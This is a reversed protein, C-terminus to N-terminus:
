CCCAIFFFDVRVVYVMYGHIRVVQVVVCFFVPYDAFKTLGDLFVHIFGVALRSLKGRLGEM